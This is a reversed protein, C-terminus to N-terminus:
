EVNLPFRSSLRGDGQDLRLVLQMNNQTDGPGVGSAPFVSNFTHNGAPIVGAGTARFVDTLQYPGNFFTVGPGYPRSIFAALFGNTGGTVTIASALTITGRTGNTAITWSPDVTNWNPNGRDFIAPGQLIPDFGAQGRVTNNGVFWNFGSLHSSDGLANTVTVNLGYTNWAGRQDSTLTQWLASMAKVANRVVTQFPTRPNVPVTRARIYQTNRARSAVAAGAAGSAAGGGYPGRWKM